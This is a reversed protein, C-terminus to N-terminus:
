IFVCRKFIRIAELTKRTGPAGHISGYFIVGKDDFLFM